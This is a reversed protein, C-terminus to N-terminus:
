QENEYAVFDSFGIYDVDAASIQQEDMRKTLNYYHGFKGAPSPQFTFNFISLRNHNINNNYTM